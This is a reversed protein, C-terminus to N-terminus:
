KECRQQFSLVGQSLGVLIAYVRAPAVGGFFILTKYGFSLVFSLDKALLHKLHREVGPIARLSPVHQHYVYVHAGNVPLM